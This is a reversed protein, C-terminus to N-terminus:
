LPLTLRCVFYAMGGLSPPVLPLVACALCIPPPPSWLYPSNVSDTLPVSILYSLSASWAFNSFTTPSPDFYINTLNFTFIVWIMGPTPFLTSHSSRSFTKNRPFNLNLAPLVWYFLRFCISLCLFCLPQKQKHSSRKLLYFESSGLCPHLIPDLSKLMLFEIHKM